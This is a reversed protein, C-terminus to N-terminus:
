RRSIVTGHCLSQIKAFPVNSATVSAVEGGDTGRITTVPDSWLRGEKWLLHTCHLRIATLSHGPHPHPHMAPSLQVPCFYQKMYPGVSLRFSKCPPRVPIHRTIRHIVALKVSTGPASMKPINPYEDAGVLGCPTVVVYMKIVM